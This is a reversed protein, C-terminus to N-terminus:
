VRFEQCERAEPETKKAHEKWETLLTVSLDSLPVRRIGAETKPTGFAGEYV